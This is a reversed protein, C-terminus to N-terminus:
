SEAKQHIFRGVAEVWARMQSANYARDYLCAYVLAPSRSGDEEWEFPGLVVHACDRCLECTFRKWWERIGHRPLRRLARVHGEQLHRQGNEPVPRGGNGSGWGTM